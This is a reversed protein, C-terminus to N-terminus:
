NVTINTNLIINVINNDIIYDNKKLDVIGNAAWDLVCDSGPRLGALGM